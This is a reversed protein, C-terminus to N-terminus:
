RIKLNRIKVHKVFLIKLSIYCFLSWKCAPPNLPEESLVVPASNDDNEAGHSIEEVHMENNERGEMSAQAPGDTM